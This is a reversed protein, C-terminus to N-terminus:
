FLQAQSSKTGNNNSSGKPDGFMELFDKETLIEVELRKAKDYKSGPNDGAVVYSTNKSVSSAVMGGEEKVLRGADPRSLAEMSGTFVFSMGSFRGETTTKSWQIDIGATNLKYLLQLSDENHFYEYLSEAVKEGFGEINELEELSIENMANVLDEVKSGKIKSAIERSLIEATQQGIFRIGLAFIFSGPSVKKSKEISEILNDSRKEKFLELALLEDRKLSFIDAPDEILEADILQYVIKDGMGDLNFAHRSVFHKIREAQQAYCNINGCYFNVEGENRYIESNCIPCTTPFKFKKESGIRLDTLVEVVEPIIDGAKQIIVTDGIRVDKRGIEDINHLTARAVTSGAVLVSELTAVPTLAGTRGVQIHIDIIRTSVQEAPFKYAAYFRPFKATYGIEDQHAKSDVKVVVGDIELPLDDRHETWHKCFDMVEGLSDFLRNERNVRFGLDMLKKTVESQSKPPQDLTNAGITYFFLDLERDAAVQPDLQRVTGAAANRPNAFEESIKAFAAKPLFIEGSVEIDVEDKLTLPVSKITKVTHTVNEGVKGDGRTIAKFYEGNKYWLTVNLGDIKLECMYKFKADPIFKQIREKWAKIEDFSFCDQLSWKRSKHEIKDFRGSLASGVRQTPSDPTILDPFETELNILERKLSDRVSEEVDGKDLVFYSHNIKKIKEKLKDIRKAAELKDM